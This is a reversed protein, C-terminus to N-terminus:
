SARMCDIEAFAADATDHAGGLWDGTQGDTIFYRLAGYEDRTRQVCLATLWEVRDQDDMHRQWGLDSM